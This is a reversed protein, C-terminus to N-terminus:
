FAMEVQITDGSPMIELKMSVIDQLSWVLLEQKAKSFTEAIMLPLVTLESQLNESAAIVLCNNRQASNSVM